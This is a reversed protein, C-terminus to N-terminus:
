RAGPARPPSGRRDASGGPGHRAAELDSEALVGFRCAAGSDSRGLAPRAGPVGACLRVARRARLARPRASHLATGPSPARESSTRTRSAPPAPAGGDKARQEGSKAPLAFLYCTLSVAFTTGLSTPFPAFAGSLWWAFIDGTVLRVPTAAVNYSGDILAGIPEALTPSVLPTTAAAAILAAILDELM